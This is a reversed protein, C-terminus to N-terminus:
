AAVERSEFWALVEARKWYRIRNILVPRPFGMAPTNLWRYLTMDSIGGCLTRVAEAIIREDPHFAAPEPSPFSRPQSDSPRM